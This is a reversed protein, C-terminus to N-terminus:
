NLNQKHSQSILKVVFAFVLQAKQQDTILMRIRSRGDPLQERSGQLVELELDFHDVLFQETERDIEMTLEAPEEDLLEDATM